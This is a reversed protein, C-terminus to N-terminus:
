KKARVVIRKIPPIFQVTNWVMNLDEEAERVMGNVEVVPHLFVNRLKLTDNYMYVNDFVSAATRDDGWAFYLYIIDDRNDFDKHFNYTVGEYYRYKKKDSEKRKIPVIADRCVVGDQLIILDSAIQFRNVAHNLVEQNSFEHYPYEIGHDEERVHHILNRILYRYGSLFGGAGKQFDRQHMLWGIYNISPNDKAAYWDTTLPFRRKTLQMGPVQSQFGTALVLVECHHYKATATASMVKTIEEAQNRHLYGLRDKAWQFPIDQHVITDLLKGHFNELPTLFKARVDGTYKTVSSLRTPHKGSIVVSEAVGFVNQAVEYGANGNGLICVKKGVAIEKTMKSYPIGGIAQLYPEDKEKLGTGVFVRYKACRKTGDILYVCPTGDMALREVQTGYEINLNNETVVMNMYRHWDNGSPFYDKSVDDWM